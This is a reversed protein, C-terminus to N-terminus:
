VYTNDVKREELKNEDNGESIDNCGIFILYKKEKKM